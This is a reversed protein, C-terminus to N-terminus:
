GGDDDSSSNGDGHEAAAAPNTQMVARLEAVTPIAQECDRRAKRQFALARRATDAYSPVHNEILNWLAETAEAERGRRIAALRRDPLQLRARPRRRFGRRRRLPM